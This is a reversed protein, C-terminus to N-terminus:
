AFISAWWGARPPRSPPPSLSRGCSTASGSCSRRGRRPKAGRTRSWSGSDSPMHRLISSSRGFASSRAQRAAYRAQPVTSGSREREVGDEHLLRRQEGFVVSEGTLVRRLV